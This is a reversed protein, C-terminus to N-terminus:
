FAESLTPVIHCLTHVLFQQQWSKHPLANKQLVLLRRNNLVTQVIHKLSLRNLLNISEKEIRPIRIAQCRCPQLGFSADKKPPSASCATTRTPLSSNFSILIVTQASALTGASTNILPIAAIHWYHNIPSM